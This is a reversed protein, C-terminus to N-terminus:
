IAAQARAPQFRPRHGMLPNPNVVAQDAPRLLVDLMSHTLGLLIVWLSAYVFGFWVTFMAVMIGLLVTVAVAVPLRQADNNYRGYVGSARWTLVLPISLLLGFGVFGRRMIYLVYSNDVSELGVETKDLTQGYGFAGASAAFPWCNQMIKARIYTSDQITQGINEREGLVMNELRLSMFIGGALLVIFFLVLVRGFIPMTLLVTLMGIAALAGFWASYSLSTFSVCLATFIAFKVWNNRLGVSTTMALVAIMGAILLCANGTDIPHHFTIQTRFFHFRMMVMTNQGVFLGLPKLHRSVWFPWLRVEILAFFGIGIILTVLIWLARRRAVPDLFMARALFYPMLFGLFEIGIMNVGTWIKETASASVIACLSLGVMIADAIGFRFNLSEGGKIIIGGLIGYMIGYLADIDPVGPLMIKKTNSFLIVCPIYLTTFAWVANRRLTLVLAAILMAIAFLQGM